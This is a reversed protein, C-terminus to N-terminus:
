VLIYGEQEYCRHHRMIMDFLPKIRPDLINLSKFKNYQKNFLLENGHKIRDEIDDPTLMSARDGLRSYFETQYINIGALDFDGFHIYKNPIQELWEYLASNQPYRSVFLYKGQPFLRVQGSLNNFNELNEIGVVIVDEPISFTEPHYIFFSMGCHPTLTIAQRDISIKVPEICNVMFGRLTNVKLTKSDGTKNVLDQRTLNDSRLEIWEDIPVGCTFRDRIFNDCLEPDQVRIKKRSGNASISIVNGDLLPRTIWEPLATWALTEGSLIRQLKKAQSSTLKNETM